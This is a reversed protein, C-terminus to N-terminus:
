FILYYPILINVVAIWFVISEFARIARVGEYKYKFYKKMIIVRGVLVGIVMIMFMGVVYDMLFNGILASDVIFTNDDTKFLYKLLFLLVLLFVNLSVDFALYILMFRWLGPPDKKADYVIDEYIPVFMRTTLFLAVYAFLIRLAKIVYIVYFQSDIIMELLSYKLEYLSNIKQKHAKIKDSISEIMQEIEARKDKNDIKTQATSLKELCEELKAYFAAQSKMIKNTHEAHKEKITNAYTTTSPQQSPAPGGGSQSIIHGGGLPTFKRPDSALGLWKRGKYWYALKRPFKLAKMHKKVEEVNEIAGEPNQIMSLWKNIADILYKAQDVHEEENLVLRAVSHATRAANLASRIANSAPESSGGVQTADIAFNIANKVSKEVDNPSHGGGQSTMLGDISTLMTTTMKNISGISNPSLGTSKVKTNFNTLNEKVIKADIKVSNIDNGKAVKISVNVFYYYFLYLLKLHVSFEQTVISQLQFDGKTPRYPLFFRNQNSKLIPSENNPLARSAQYLVDYTYLICNALYMPNKDDPKYKNYETNIESYKNNTETLFQQPVNVSNAMSHVNQAIKVAKEAIKLSDLNDIIALERQLEDESMELLTEEELEVPGQEPHAPQEIATHTQALQAQAQADELQTQAEELQAQKEELQQQGQRLKEDFKEKQQESANLLENAFSAKNTEITKLQEKLEEVRKEAQAARKKAAQVDTFREILSTKKPTQPLLSMVLNIADRGNEYATSKDATETQAANAKIRADNITQKKDQAGELKDAATVAANAAIVVAEVAKLHSDNRLKEGHQDILKHIKIIKDADQFLTNAEQIIKVADDHTDAKRDKLGDANTKISNTDSQTTVIINDKIAKLCTYIANTVNDVPPETQPKTKEIQKIQKILTGFYTYVDLVGSVYLSAEYYLNVAKDVDALTTAADDITSSRVNSKANKIVDKVADCFISLSEKNQKYTDSLINKSTQQIVDVLYQVSNFAHKIIDLSKADKALTKKAAEEALEVVKIVAKEAAEKRGVADDKADAFKQNAKQIAENSKTTKAEKQATQAAVVNPDTSIDMKVFEVFAAAKLAAAQAAAKISENQAKEALDKAKKENEAGPVIPVVGQAKRKFVPRKFSVLSTFFVSANGPFNIKNTVAQLDNLARTREDKDSTDYPLGEITNLVEQTQNIYTDKNLVLVAISHATRAANRAIIIAKSGLTLREEAKIAEIASEIANKVSNEVDEPSFGGGTQVEKEQYGRGSQAIKRKGAHQPVISNLFTSIANEIPDEGAKDVEGAKDLNRDAEINDKVEAVQSSFDKDDAIVYLSIEYYVNAAIEAYALKKAATDLELTRATKIETSLATYFNDLATKNQIYLASSQKSLSLQIVNMLAKISDLASRVITLPAGGALALSSLDPVMGIGTGTGTRASPTAKEAATKAANLEAEITKKEEKKLKPTKGKSFQIFAEAKLAAAQAAASIAALQAKDTAIKAKKQNASPVAHAATADDNLKSAKAAELTAQAGQAKTRAAELKTQAEALKAQAEKLKTQAEAEAGEVKAQAGEVEAQAGEVKAQAGEVKAQAGEVEAEAQKVEAEAETVETQAANAEAQAQRAAEEAEEATKPADKAVEEPKGTNATAAVEANKKRKDDAAKRAEQATKKAKAAVDNAKAVTKGAEKLRKQAAKLKINAQEVLTEADKVKSKINEIEETTRIGKKAARAESAQKRQKQIATDLIQKAQTVADKDAKALAERAEKVEDIEETLKADAEDAKFLENQAEQLKTQLAELKADAETKEETAETLAENAKTLEENAANLAIDAKDAEKEAKDAAAEAKVVEDPETSAKPPTSEQLPLLVIKISSKFDTSATLVGAAATVAEVTDDSGTQKVARIAATNAADIFKSEVKSSLLKALLYRVNAETCKKVIFQIDTAKSSENVQRQSAEKAAKDIVDRQMTVLDDVLSKLTEVTKVTKEMAIKAREVEIPNESSLGTVEKQTDIIQTIIGAAQQVKEFIQGIFAKTVADILNYNEDQQLSLIAATLVNVKTNAKEIAQQILETSVLTESVVRVISVVNTVLDSIDDTDKMSDLIHKATLDDVPPPPPQDEPPPPPPGAPPPPPPGTPPATQGAPPPPPGAPPATQRAQPPAAAAVPNVQRVSKADHDRMYKLLLRMSHRNNKMYFERMMNHNVTSKAGYSRLALKVRYAIRDNIPGLGEDTKPVPIRTIYSATEESTKTIDGIWRKHRTEVNEAFTGLDELATEVQEQKDDTSSLGLLGAIQAM